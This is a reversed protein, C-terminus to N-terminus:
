GYKNSFGPDGPNEAGALQNLDASDEMRAPNPRDQARSPGRSTGPTSKKGAAAHKGCVPCDHRKDSSRHRRAIVDSYKVYVEGESRAGRAASRDDPSNQMFFRLRRSRARQAGITIANAAAASAWFQVLPLLM